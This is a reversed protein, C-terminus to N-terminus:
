TLPVEFGYTPGPADSLRGDLTVLTTDLSEALAVYWADYTTVTARLEWIREAFPEYPYLDVPLDLLDAHALASIHPSLDRTLEARNLVSAVEVTM